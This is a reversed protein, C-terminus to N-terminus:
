SKIFNHLLESSWVADRKLNVLEKRYVDHELKITSVLQEINSSGTEREGRAILTGAFMRYYEVVNLVLSEINKPVSGAHIIANRCRYIRGIQWRIRDEHAFFSRRFSEPTAFKDTLQWLRHLALPNNKLLRMVKDRDDKLDPILFAKIFATHPDGGIKKQIEGVQRGFTRRYSVTLDDYVSVFNRRAYRACLAPTIDDLYRVIRVGSAAPQELMVEFASWYALLVNEIDAFSHSTAATDISRMLRAASPTDFQGVIATTYRKVSKLAAGGSPIYQARQDHTVKKHEIINGYSSRALSVHTRGDWEFDTGQNAMYAVSRVQRLLVSVNKVAVYPDLADRKQELFLTHTLNPISSFDNRVHLPLASLGKVVSFGMGKLHAGLSSDIPVYCVYSRKAHSFMDFFSRLTEARVRKVARGFFKSELCDSIYRRSYGANLLYSIYLSSLSRLESRRNPQDIVTSIKDRLFGEYSPEVQRHILSLYNKIDRLPTSKNQLAEELVPIERESIIKIAVDSKFSWCVEALIPDLAARPM